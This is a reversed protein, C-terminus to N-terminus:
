STANEIDSIKSLIGTLLERTCNHIVTYNGGSTKEGVIDRCEADNKPGPIVEIGANHLIVTYANKQETRM